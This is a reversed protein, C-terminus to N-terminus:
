QECPVSLTMGVSSFYKKCTGDASAFSKTTEAKKPEDAKKPESKADKSEPKTEPKAEAAKTDKKDATDATNKPATTAPPDRDASARQVDAGRQPVYEGDEVAEAREEAQEERYEAYDEADWGTQQVLPKATLAPVGFGAQAAPAFALALAAAATAILTKNM